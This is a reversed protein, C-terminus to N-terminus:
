KRPSSSAIWPYRVQRLYKGYLAANGYKVVPVHLEASGNCRIQACDLAWAILSEWKDISIRRCQSREASLKCKWGKKYIYLKSKAMTQSKTYRGQKSLDWHTIDFGM